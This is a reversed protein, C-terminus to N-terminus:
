RLRHVGSELAQRLGGLLEAAADSGDEGAGGGDDVDGSKEAPPM